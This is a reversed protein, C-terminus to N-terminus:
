GEREERMSVEVVSWFTKQALRDPDFKVAWRCTEPWATPILREAKRVSDNLPEYVNLRVWGIREDVWAPPVTEGTAEGPEGYREAVVVAFGYETLVHRRDIRQADEETTPFVWVQKGAPMTAATMDPAYSRSVDAAPPLMSGLVGRLEDAMELHRDAYADPM